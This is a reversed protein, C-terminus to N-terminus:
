QIKNIQSLISISRFNDALDKDGKKHLPTVKATKLIDPYTGLSVFANFIDALIPAIIYLSWKILIAPIDDSGTSMKDNLDNGKEVVESATANDFIMKHPNRPAMSELINRNSHPLKSALSPGKQVFHCHMHNAITQADYLTEMYIM